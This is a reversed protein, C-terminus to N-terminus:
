EVLRELQGLWLGDFVVFSAFRALMFSLMDPNLSFSHARIVKKRWAKEKSPM